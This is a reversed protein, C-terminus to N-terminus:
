RGSKAIFAPSSCHRILVWVRVVLLCRDV